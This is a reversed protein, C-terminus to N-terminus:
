CKQVDLGASVSLGAFGGAFVCLFACLKILEDDDDDDDFMFM